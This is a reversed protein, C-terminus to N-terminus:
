IHPVLVFNSNGLIGIDLEKGFLNNFEPLFVVALIVALILASLSMLVSEGLFQIIVSKRDAGVVKRLGIEKARRSSRATSLNIFNICAILLVFFAIASFVSLVTARSSGGYTETFRLSKLKEIKLFPLQGDSLNDAFEPYATRIKTGLYGRLKENFSDFYSSERLQLFTEPINHGWTSVYGERKYMDLRLAYPLLIDFELVSNGPINEIVATVTVEYEDNFVATKGVPDRDGFYKEAIEKTIVMSRHDNLAINGDGHIFEFTFMRLFSPDAYYVNNEYFPNNDIKLLTREAYQYRSTEVIEPFEEKIIPAMLVPTSRVPNDNYTKIFQCLVDSNEHFNDYNLEHIVWMSILICCTMGVTLGTINIFSYGKNRGINRLATKMYNKFMSCSWYIKSYILVPASKLIQGFLWFWAYVRGKKLLNDKYFLEFNGYLPDREMEPLFIKLLLFPLRPKKHHEKKM